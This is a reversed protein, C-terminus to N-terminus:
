RGGVEKLYRPERAQCAPNLAIPNTGSRSSGHRSAGERNYAVLCIWELWAILKCSVGAEFVSYFTNQVLPCLQSKIDPTRPSILVTGETSVRKSM